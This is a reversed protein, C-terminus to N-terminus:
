YSLKRFLHIPEGPVFVEPNILTQLSGHNRALTETEYGICITRAQPLNYLYYPVGDGHHSLFSLCSAIPGSVILPNRATSQFLVDAGLYELQEALLFPLYTFEGTGLILIPKSLDLNFLERMAQYGGVRTTRVGLRGADSGGLLRKCQYEVYRPLVPQKGEPTFSLLGRVLTEIRANRGTAQQLASLARGGSLDLITLLVIEELHSNLELYGRALKSATDGTTIEDDVIILTKAELFLDCYEARPMHLVQHIAHSHSEEFYVAVPHPLAYRTTHMYLTDDRGYLDSFCEQVGNGLSTAVEAMGVVVVPGQVAGIREALMRMIARKRSPRVPVYKGIVKSVLLFPRRPNKRAGFDLIDELPVTEEETELEIVGTAIRAVYKKQRPQPPALAVCEPITSLFSGNM